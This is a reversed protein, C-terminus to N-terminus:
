PKKRLMLSSSTDLDELKVPAITIEYVWNPDDDVQFVMRDGEATSHLILTKADGPYHKAMRHLIQAGFHKPSLTLRHHAAALEMMIKAAAEATNGDMGPM